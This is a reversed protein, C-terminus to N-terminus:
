SKTTNKSTDTTTSNCKKNITNLASSMKDVDTSSKANSIIKSALDSDDNQSHMNTPNQLYAMGLADAPAIGGDNQIRFKFENPKTCTASYLCAHSNDSPNINITIDTQYGLGGPTSVSVEKTEFLWDVGDTTRFNATSTGGSAALTFTADGNLNLRHSLIAPFKNAGECNTDSNYPAILPRVDSYLGVAEAEGNSNYGTNWYLSNDDLIEATQTTLTNYAKIYTTKAKDPRMNNLEPMVLAAVVGIIALSVLLEQLTFGKKYM